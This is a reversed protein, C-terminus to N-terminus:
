AFGWPWLASAAAVLVVVLAAVAPLWEAERECEALYPLNDDGLIVIRSRHGQRHRRPSPSFNVVAMFRTRKM